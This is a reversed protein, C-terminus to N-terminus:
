GDAARRTRGGRQPTSPAPRRRSGRLLDEVTIGLRNMAERWRDAIALAQHPMLRAEGREANSVTAQYLGGGTEAAFQTQSLKVAQRLEKLPTVERM